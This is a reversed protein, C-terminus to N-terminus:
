DQALELWFICIWCPSPLHSCTGHRLYPALQWQCMSPSWFNKKLYNNKLYNSKLTIKLYNNWVIHESWNEKGWSMGAGRWLGDVWIWWKERKKERFLMCTDLFIIFYYLFLGSYSLVCLRIKLFSDMFFVCSVCVSVSDCLMGVFLFDM